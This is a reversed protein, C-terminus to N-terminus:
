RGSRRAPAAAAPRAARRASAPPSQRVASAAAQRCRACRRAVQDAAVLLRQPRELFLAGAVERVRQGLAAAEADVDEALAAREGDDHADDRRLDRREGLQVQRRREGVDRRQLVADHEDGARGSRALRRREGRDDVQDVLRAGLVDERDLIRDLEQVACSPAGDVLALQVAVRRGERQRQARRQALRRLHDQDALHAVALRDLDRQGRGLGPWRTNEVSCVISADFVTSRM